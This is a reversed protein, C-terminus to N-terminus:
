AYPKLGKEKCNKELIESIEFATKAGVDGEILEDTLNEFFEDSKSDGKFLKKIREAFSIKAM